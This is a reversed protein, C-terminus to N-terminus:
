TLNHKGQDIVMNDQDYLYLRYKTVKDNNVLPLWQITCHTSTLSFNLIMARKTDELKIVSIGEPAVHQAANKQIM